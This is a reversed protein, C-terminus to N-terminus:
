EVRHFASLAGGPTFHARSAFTEDSVARVQHIAHHMDKTMM